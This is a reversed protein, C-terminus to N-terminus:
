TALLVFICTRLPMRDNSWRSGFSVLSASSKASTARRLASGLTWPMRTCSGRGDCISGCLIMAATSGPFSTSPKLGTFTPRKHAPKGASAGQVGIPPMRRAVVAGGVSATREEEGLGRLRRDCPELRDRDAAGVDDALGQRLKQERFVCGDRKRMRLRALKRRDAPAGVKQKRRDPPRFHHPAVPDLGAGGDD